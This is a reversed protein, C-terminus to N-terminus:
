RRDEDEKFIDNEYKLPSEDVCDYSKRICDWCPDEFYRKNRHKCSQCWKNITEGPMNSM